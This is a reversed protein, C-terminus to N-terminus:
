VKMLFLKNKFLLYNSCGSAIGILQVNRNREKLEGIITQLVEDMSEYTLDLINGDSDGSAPFDFMCINHQNSLKNAIQSYLFGPGSKNQFLGHLFVVYNSSQKNEILKVCINNKSTRIFFEDQSSDLCSLNKNHWDM